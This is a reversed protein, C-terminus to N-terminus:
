CPPAEPALGRAAIRRRFEAMATRERPGVDYHVCRTLYELCFASPRGLPGAFRGAIAPLARRGEALSERAIGALVEADPRGARHAWVAFVFPLGTAEKWAAALDVDGGAGPPEALARDGIVVVADASTGPPSVEVEVGFREALLLRVLLNSTRSAPDAAVTRVAEPPRACRLVVSRVEGDACVGIGDIMELGPAFLVDAVPVLAADLRGARVEDALRAPDAHVLAVDSRAKMGEILPAANLFASAGFRYAPRRDGSRGTFITVIGGALPRASTEELGAAAFRALLASPAPLAEISDVLYRYAAGDSLLRGVLPVVGRGYLRHLRRLLGGSPTTLELVVVRGGPRTVRRMEALAAAHDTVNRLTFASVVGDFAASAFPLRRADGAAWRVAAGAAFGRAAAKAAALGLMARAPDLGIARAGPARRLIGFSVDGTGCGVDLYRGAASPDLARVVARRWLRDMGLSLLANLRDYAPAIRDFMRRNEGASLLADGGGAAPGGVASM